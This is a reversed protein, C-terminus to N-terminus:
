KGEQKNKCKCDDDNLNVGCNLCIGKCDERCLLNVPMNLLIAEHAIEVLNIKDNVLSYGYENNQEVQESFTAVVQQCAPKLCRTCEGSITFVIEGDVYASHEGTLDVTGTVKIPSEIVASPINCLEADPQYEFFFQTQDKGSRKLTRLDIIM